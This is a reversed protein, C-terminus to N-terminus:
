GHHEARGQREGETVGAPRPPAPRGPPRMAKAIGIQSEHEATILTTITADKTSVPASGFPRSHPVAATTPKTVM